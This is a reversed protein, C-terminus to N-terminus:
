SLGKQRILCIKLETASEEMVKLKKSLYELLERNELIKKRSKSLQQIMKQLAQIRKPLMDIAVKDILRNLVYGCNVELENCILSRVSERRNNYEEDIIKRKRADRNLFTLFPIAIPSLAITLGVFAVTLGIGAALLPLWMPSTVLLVGVVSATSINTDDIETDASVKTKDPEVVIWGNEMDSLDSSVKEYFSAIETKVAEFRQVVDSSKLVNKIHINIRDHINMVFLKPKWDVEMIPPTGSPNLIRDKGLDTSMYDYVGQAIGEIEKKIRKQM